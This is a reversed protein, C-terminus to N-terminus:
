GSGFFYDIGTLEMDVMEYAKDKSVLSQVVRKTIKSKM